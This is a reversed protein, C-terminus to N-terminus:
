EDEGDQRMEEQRERRLQGEFSDDEARMEREVAADAKAIGELFGMEALEMRMGLIAQAVDVARNSLSLLDMAVDEIAADDGDAFKAWLEEARVRLLRKSTRENALDHLVRRRDRTRIAADVQDYSYM